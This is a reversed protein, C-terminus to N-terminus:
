KLWKEDLQLVGDLNGRAKIATEHRPHIFVRIVYLSEVFSQATDPKFASSSQAFCREENRVYLGTELSFPEPVDIILEDGSIKEGLLTSLEAALAQERCARDGINQLPHHRRRDFPFEAALTFLAGEKVQAALSFLPGSRNGMLAFLSQDDLGYLEEGNLAGSQLAGILVKKIMATASRVSHHWYVTRYMLYKSFLVSEVSPIGRSDIDVGRERHPYLRSLIFDV